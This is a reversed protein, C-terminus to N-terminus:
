ENKNYIKNIKKRIKKISRYFMMKTAGEKKGIIEAIENFKLDEEFRLAIVERELDSAVEMAENIKAIREEKMAEEVFNEFVKTAPDTEEDEINRNGSRTKVKRLADISTNRAVTYLWALVGDEDREAVNEWNEYLKLFVDATLDEARTPKSVKRYIYWYMKKRYKQYIKKFREDKAVDKEKQNQRSKNSEAAAL